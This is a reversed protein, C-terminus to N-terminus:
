NIGGHRRAGQPYDTVDIVERERENILEQFVNVRGATEDIKRAQSQTVTRGTAWQTHLGECDRLLLGPPHRSRVYYADNHYVYFAALDPAVEEGVRKVYSSIQGNTKANRIPETGYRELYASKYREWVRMSPTVEALASPKEYSKLPETKNQQTLDPETLNQQNPVTIHASKLSVKTRRSASKLSVQHKKLIKNLRLPNATKYKTTLYRGAYDLWDHVLKGDLWKRSQLCQVFHGADGTYGAAQALMADPWEGLDGDEQQELVTHWLAHLHGLVHVPPIGLDSALLILKRHRLLVSHSELWPM